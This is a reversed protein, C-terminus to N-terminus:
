IPIAFSSTVNQEAVATPLAAPCLEVVFLELQHNPHPGNPFPPYALCSWGNVSAPGPAGKKKRKKKKKKQKYTGFTVM